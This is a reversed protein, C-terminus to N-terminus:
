NGVTITIEMAATGIQYDKEMDYATFIATCPYEGRSLEVDLKANEVYYGPDILNSKYITEGTDDRNIEVTFSYSNGPINEIRLNGKSKGDEFYPTSNMSVNLMGDAVLRNLRDKIEDDSMGPMIGLEAETEAVLPNPELIDEKSEEKKNNNMTILFVMGAALLAIIILLLIIVVRNSKHSKDNKKQQRGM